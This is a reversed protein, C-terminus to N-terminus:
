QLTTAIFNSIENYYNIYSRNRNIANIVNRLSKKDKCKWNTEQLFTYM